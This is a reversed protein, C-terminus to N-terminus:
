FSDHGKSYWSLLQGFGERKTKDLDLEIISSLVLRPQSLDKFEVIEAVRPTTVTYTHQQVKMPRTCGITPDLSLDLYVTNSISVLGSNIEALSDKAHTPFTLAFLLFLLLSIFRRM